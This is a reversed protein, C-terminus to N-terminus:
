NCDYFKKMEKIVKGLAVKGYGKEQYKHDIMFRCIDYSNNEYCYGYM